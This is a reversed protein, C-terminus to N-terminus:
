AAAGIDVAANDQPLVTETRRTRDEEDTDPEGSDKGILAELREITEITPRWHPSDFNRLTTDRIGAEKALRSKRWGKKEAFSRIQRIALREALRIIRSYSKMHPISAYRHPMRLVSFRMLM